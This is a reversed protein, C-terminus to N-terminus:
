KYTPIDACVQWQLVILMAMVTYRKLSIFYIDCWSLQIEKLYPYSYKKPYRINLHIKPTFLINKAICFDPIHYNKNNFLM